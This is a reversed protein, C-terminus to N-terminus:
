KLCMIEASTALRIPPVRSDNGTAVPASTPAESRQSQLSPHVYEDMLQVLLRTWLEHFSLTRMTPVNIKTSRLVVKTKFRGDSTHITHICVEEM